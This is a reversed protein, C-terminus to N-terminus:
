PVNEQQKNKKRRLLRMEDSLANQRYYAIPGKGVAMELTTTMTM